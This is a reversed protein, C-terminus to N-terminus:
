SSWIFILLAGFLLLLPLGVKFLWSFRLEPPTILLFAVAEDKLLQSCLKLYNRRHGIGMTFVVPSSKQVEELLLALTARERIDSSLLKNHQTILANLQRVAQAEKANSAKGGRQVVFRIEQTAQLKQIEQGLQNVGHLVRQYAKQHEVPYTELDGKRFYNLLSQGSIAAALQQIQKQSHKFRLAEQWQKGLSSFIQLASSYHDLKAHQLNLIKECELYLPFILQESYSTDIGEYVGEGGFRKVQHNEVLYQYYSLLRAQCNVIQRRQRNSISGRWVTHVQGLLIIVSKPKSTASYVDVRAGKFVQSRKLKRLLLWIANSDWHSTWRALSSLNM